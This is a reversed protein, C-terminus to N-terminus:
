SRVPEWIGDFACLFYHFWISCFFIDVGIYGMEAVPGHRWAVIPLFVASHHPLVLARWFRALRDTSAFIRQPQLERGLMTNLPHGVPSRGFELQQISLTM